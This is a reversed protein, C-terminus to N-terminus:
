KAQRALAQELRAQSGGLVIAPGLKVLEGRRAAFAQAVLGPAPVAESRGDGRRESRFRLLYSLEKENQCPRRCRVFLKARVHLVTRVIQFPGSEVTQGGFPPRADLEAARQVNLSPEQRAACPLTAPRTPVPRSTARAPEAAPSSRPMRALRTSAAITCRTVGRPQTTREPATSAHSGKSGGARPIFRACWGMCTVRGAGTAVVDRHFM